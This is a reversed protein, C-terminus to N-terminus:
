AFLKKSRTIFAPKMSLGEIAHAIEDLDERFEAPSAILYRWPSFNRTPNVRIDDRALALYERARERKHTVFHAIAMCQLFNAGRKMDPNSLEISRSFLDQPPIGTEGWEAMAYNFTEVINSLQSAVPRKMAILRMAESYRQQAILCLCLNTSAEANGSPNDSTARLLREAAALGDVNGMLEVAVQSRTSADQQRIATSDYIRSIYDKDHDAIIRVSNIVDMAAVERRALVQKADAVAETPHGLMRNLQARRALMYSPPTGARIAEDLMSVADQLNGMRERINAIRYLIDVDQPHARAIASISDEYESPKLNAVAPRTLELEIKALASLAGENDDPNGAVITNVLARYEQALKSKPRVDLFIEQDLLSLSNYHHVIITEDDGYQFLERSRELQRQLISEEDDLDPVNSAVFHLKIGKRRPTEREARVDGVVKVLGRLNQENPFFMVAVADPLQRTCIGGIDTHGTRSDILVYHPGGPIAQRWQAKLDEFMLFGSRNAYLDQWDIANLRAAYSANQRGAPMVWLGANPTGSYDCQMIFQRVDPARNKSIYESVYDVMGPAEAASAFLQFSSIGPAELDFDVLLVRRGRNALDVATNVLSMTRGVGGKFSYFTVVYM